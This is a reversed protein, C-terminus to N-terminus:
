HKLPSLFDILVTSKPLKGGIVAFYYKRSAFYKQIIENVITKTVNKYCKDFVSSNPIIDAATENHLMVRVGNYASKNGGAISTMKLSDKINQKAMKMEKETVGNEILDDLIDFMVPVIGPPTKSKSESYKKDNILRDVDSTAYIVFVGATEYLTMYAGSSYTLGRKERLEVFLRSSMTNSIIKRLVNLTYCDENKFQDCVRVGIEVRATDGPASKFMYNSTCHGDLAGLNNNLLPSVKMPRQLQEAFPTTSVYRVITNFAISSVVSIVINQPVYHQYYFDIVSDYPLSGPSHYSINDVPNAYVTGSFALEEISFDSKKMKMEERVVHRELMYEKKDFKSRLMMDGLIRVFQQTYSDLCDVNFCTYQKTTTANFNAGSQSFPENVAAWSPFARSGKFCMHEIFHSVGRLNDPEHISGVHCFARIHTQPLESSHSEYVLRLGNSFTHTKTSKTPM